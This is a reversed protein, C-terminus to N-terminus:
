KGAEQDQLLRAIVDSARRHRDGAIPGVVVAIARLVDVAAYLDFRDDYSMLASARGQRFAVEAIEVLRRSNEDAEHGAAGLGAVDFSLGHGSLSGGTVQFAGSTV